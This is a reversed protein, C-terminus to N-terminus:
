LKDPLFSDGDTFAAPYGTCFIVPLSFSRMGAIIDGHKKQIM